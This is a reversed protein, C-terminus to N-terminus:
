PTDWWLRDTLKASQQPQPNSIIELQPYLLRRPIDSLANPVKTLEPFGTRRWDVWNELNFIDAVSKEEMIMQLANDETLSGRAALYATVDAANASLGLKTMNSLIADKYVPQAAAAGSQILTAEAKLFLAESYTVIYNYSDAGGYFSAAISYSELSGLDPDGIARGRYEGDSQAPAVIVPLRPDDTAKLGDVLHESLVLTSGPLFTLFWPNEQGAAGTYSFKLDDANETMGKSLADLAKGAQEAATHGPAKTLHMYYRAKLTYALKVWKELDGSYFFDDSEPAKGSPNQLDAIGNDLYTQVASYISEQSDYIPVFNEAGKLAESFPVDGWFDTATGLAYAFLIKSIGAYATNGNGEAQKILTNLNNMVTTYANTWDGDSESNVMMYTGSNPVPQNLAVSQVYHQALIADYGAFLSHSIATEVAPLIQSENVTIPRNPDNNVDIFKKCGSALILGAGIIILQKKM